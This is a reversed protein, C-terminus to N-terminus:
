SLSNLMEQIVITKTQPLQHETVVHACKAKKARPEKDVDAESSSKQDAEDDVVSIFTYRQSAGFAEWCNARQRARKKELEALEFKTHGAYVAIGQNAVQAPYM